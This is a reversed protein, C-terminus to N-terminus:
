LKKLAELIQQKIESYNHESSGVWTGLIIGNRDILVYRPIAQVFYNTSIDTSDQKHYNWSDLCNIQHWMQTGEEKIAKQWKGKNM